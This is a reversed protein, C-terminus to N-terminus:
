HKLYKDNMRLYYINGEFDYKIEDSCSTKSMFEITGAKVEVGSISFAILGDIIWPPCIEYLSLSKTIEATFPHAASSIGSSSGNFTIVTQNAGLVLISLSVSIEYVARFQITHISDKTIEAGTIFNEYRYEGNVLGQSLISDNGTIRHFDEIYGPFAINIVTGKHFFGSDVTAVFTGFRIVSDACPNGQFSFSYKQHEADLSVTANDIVAHHTAALSSDAVAKVLMQFVYIFPRNALIQDNAVNLNPKLDIQQNKKCGATLALLFVILTFNALKKMALLNSQNCNGIMSKM